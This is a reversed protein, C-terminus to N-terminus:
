RVGLQYILGVVSIVLSILFSIMSPVNLGELGYWILIFGIIAFGLALIMNSVIYLIVSFVLTFVVLLLVSGSGILSLLINSLFFGGLLSIIIRALTFGLFGGIILGIFALLISVLTSHTLNMSYLFFIYALVIAFILSSVIRAIKLGWVAFIVGLIVLLAYFYPDKIVLSDIRM